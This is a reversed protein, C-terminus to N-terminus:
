LSVDLNTCCRNLVTDGLIFYRVKSFGHLEQLLWFVRLFDKIRSSKKRTKDEIIWVQQDPVNGVEM